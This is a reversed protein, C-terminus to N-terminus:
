AASLEDWILELSEFSADCLTSVCFPTAHNRVLEPLDAPATCTAAANFSTCARRTTLLHSGIRAPQLDFGLAGWLANLDLGVRHAVAGSIGNGVAGNDGERRFVTVLNASDIGRDLLIHRTSSDRRLAGDHDGRRGAHYHAILDAYAPLLRPIHEHHSSDRQNAPCQCKQGDIELRCIRRGLDRQVHGFSRRSSDLWEGLAGQEAIVLKCPRVQRLRQLRIRGFRQVSKKRAVGIGPELLLTLVCRCLPM